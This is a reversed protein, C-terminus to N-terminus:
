TKLIRAVNEFARKGFYFVVIVGAWDGVSGYVPDTNGLGWAADYIFVKAFYFLLVYAFLKEVEYWRGVQAIKLQNQAIIEAQQVNMERTALEAALHERTNGAELRTRYAAILGNVIPGGILSAVWGWM